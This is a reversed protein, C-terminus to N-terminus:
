KPHIRIPRIELRDRIAQVEKVFDGLAVDHLDPPAGELNALSKTLQSRAGTRNDHHLHHLGVAAQILGQYFRKAPGSTQRWLDEWAEHAEFYRGDNFFNLGALFLDPVTM